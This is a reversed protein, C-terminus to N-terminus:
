AAPTDATEVPEPADQVEMPKLLAAVAADLDPQQWTQPFCEAEWTGVVRSARETVSDDGDDISRPMSTNGPHTM